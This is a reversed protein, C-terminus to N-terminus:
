PSRWLVEAGTAGVAVIASKLAYQAHADALGIDLVYISGEELPTAGDPTIACDGDLVLGARHGIRADVIPHRAYPRVHPAAARALVSGQAGARAADITADLAAAAADDVPRRQAGITVLADVWYGLYRVALYGIFPDARQDSLGEFPALTEGGDLSFLIRFDQAERRRATREGDIVVATAPAGSRFSEQMTAVTDALIRCSQRIMQRERPRTRRMLPDLAADAEELDAAARCLSALKAHVAPRMEAAGALGIRMRGGETAAAIKALWAPLAADINGYWGVDKVWTLMAAAPLDRTAGAVLLVPEGSAPVLALTWRLRPYFNTLYTLLACEESNGHVILGAWGREAMVGRVARLREEFEDIPLWEQDLRYSGLVLVPHMTRM